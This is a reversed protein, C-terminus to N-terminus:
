NDKGQPYFLRKSLYQFDIFQFEIQDGEREPSPNPTPNRLRLYWELPPESFGYM